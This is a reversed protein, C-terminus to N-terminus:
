LQKYGNTWLIYNVFFVVLIYGILLMIHRNNYNLKKINIPIDVVKINLDDINAKFEEVALNLFKYARLHSVLTIIMYTTLGSFGM